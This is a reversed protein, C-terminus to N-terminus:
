GSKEKIGTHICATNKEAMGDGNGVVIGGSRKVVREHVYGGGEDGGGGIEEKGTGTQGKGGGTQGKGGGTQGKGGGRLEGFIVATDLPREGGVGNMVENTAKRRDGGCPCVDMKVTKRGSLEFDEKGLRMGTDMGMEGDSSQDGVEFGFGKVDDGGITKEAEEGELKFSFFAEGGCIEEVAEGGGRM